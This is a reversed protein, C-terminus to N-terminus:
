VDPFRERRLCGSIERKKSVRFDRLAARFGRCGCIEKRKLCFSLRCFPLGSPGFLRIIGARGWNYLDFLSFLSFLSLLSLLSFLSFVVIYVFMYICFYMCFCQRCINKCGKSQNNGTALGVIGM